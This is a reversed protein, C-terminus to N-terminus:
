PAPLLPSSSTIDYPLNLSSTIDHLLYCPLPPLSPPPLHCITQPRSTVSCTAPPRTYSTGPYQSPVPRLVDPILIEVLAQYLIHDCSRMWLWVPEYKCLAMLKERPIVGDMDNDSCTCLPGILVFTPPCYSM